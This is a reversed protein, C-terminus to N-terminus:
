AAANALREGPEVVITRIWDPVRQAFGQAYAGGHQPVIVAIVPVPGPETPWDTGGDTLVVIVDPRDKSEWVARIGATMSTGGRGTVERLTSRNKYKKVTQVRADVDMVILDEGRVGAKKAISVIERNAMAEDYAAMSGSADRITVLRPTPKFYGPVIVKRRGDATMITENHRRRNRRNHDVRQSGSRRRLPQRIAGALIQEWPTKSPALIMDAIEVLGGPVTGRGKAVYDKIAAATALRIAEREVESAAPALGGFDDHEGLEGAWAEGGSGSGCGKYPGQQQGCESCSGQSASASPQGSGGPEDGAGPQQAGDGQGPQGHGDGAGSQDGTNGDGQQGQGQGQQSPQQPQNTKQGCTGCKPQPNRAQAQAQMKKLLDYYYHPTQGNPAGIFVPLMKDDRFTTCGGEDLDDNISFDNAANLTKLDARSTVGLEAPILGHEAFLHSAEHAVSEVNWQFDKARVAEFDIYLRHHFDVAWTGLGPANLVRLTLIIHSFYPFMELAAARYAQLEAQMEEDPATLTM